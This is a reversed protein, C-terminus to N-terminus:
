EGITSKLGRLVLDLMVDFEHDSGFRVDPTAGEPVRGVATLTEEIRERYETSEKLDEDRLASALTFVSLGYFSQLALRPEIGAAIMADVHRQVHAVIEDRLEGSAPLVQARYFLLDALTPHRKLSARVANYHARLEEDWSADVLDVHQDYLEVGARRAMADLLEDRSRFYSYITMAGVGLREALAAMTMKDLGLERTLALASEVIQDDTLSRQVGGRRRNATRRSSTSM